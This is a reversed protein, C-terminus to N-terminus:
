VWSEVEVTEAAQNSQVYLTLGTGSLAPSEYIFGARIVRYSTTTGGVTFALRLVSSGRANVYVKKTDAAVSISQETDALAIVVNQIVPTTVILVDSGPVQQPTSSIIAM